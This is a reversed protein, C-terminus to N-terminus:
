GLASVIGHVTAPTGGSVFCKGILGADETATPTATTNTATGATASAVLKRQAATGTFTMADHFGTHQVLGCFTLDGAPFADEAFGAVRPSSAESAPLLLCYLGRTAGTAAIDWVVVNGRAIAVSASSNVLQWFGKDLGVTGSIQSALAGHSETWIM